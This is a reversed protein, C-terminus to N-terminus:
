FRDVHFFFLNKLISDCGLQAKLDDTDTVGGRSGGPAGESRM